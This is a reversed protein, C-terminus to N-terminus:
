CLFNADKPPPLDVENAPPGTPDVLVTVIISLSTRDPPIFVLGSVRSGWDRASPCPGYKLDNKDNLYSCHPWLGSLGLFLQRVSPGFTPDRLVRSFFFSIILFPIIFKVM